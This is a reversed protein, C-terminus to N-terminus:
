RSFLSFSNETILEFTEQKPVKPYITPFIPYKWTYKRQQHYIYSEANVCKLLFILRFLLSLIDCAFACEFYFCIKSM